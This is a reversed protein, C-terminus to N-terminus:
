YNDYFADEYEVKERIEEENLEIYSRLVPPCFDEDVIWLLYRLPLETLEWNKYKGFPMTFMEYDVDDFEKKM